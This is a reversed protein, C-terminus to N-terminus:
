NVELGNGGEPCLESITVCELGRAGCVVDLARETAGIVDHDYSPREYGPVHALSFSLDAPPAAHIKVIGGHM